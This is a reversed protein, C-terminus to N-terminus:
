RHLGIWSGDDEVPSLCGDEFPCRSSWKHGCDECVWDVSAKGRSVEVIHGKIVPSECKPCVPTGETMDWLEDLDKAETNKKM